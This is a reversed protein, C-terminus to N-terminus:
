IQELLAPLADRFNAEVARAAADADGRELATVIEEHQAVSREVRAASKMYALEYRLLSRKLPRLTGLLQENGCGRVLEEHFEHDIRAAAAPDGASAAMRANLERLRAITGEACAPAARIALGELLLAIPYGERLEIPDLPAVAFRGGDSGRVLGDRRLTALAERLLPPDVGLEAALAPEDLETGPALAGTVIREELLACARERDDHSM